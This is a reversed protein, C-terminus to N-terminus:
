SRPARPARSRFRYFALWAASFLLGVFLQEVVEGWTPLAGDFDIAGTMAAIQITIVGLNCTWIFCLGLILVVKSMGAKSSEVPRPKPRVSPEEKQREYDDLRKSLETLKEQSTRPQRSM